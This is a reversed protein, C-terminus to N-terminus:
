KGGPIKVSQVKLEELDFVTLRDFFKDLNKEERL